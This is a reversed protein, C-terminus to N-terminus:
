VRGLSELLGSVTQEPDPSLTKVEDVLRRYREVAVPENKHLRYLSPRPIGLELALQELTCGRARCLTDILHRSTM